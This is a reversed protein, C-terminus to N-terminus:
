ELIGTFLYHLRDLFSAGKVKYLLKGYREDLEKITNQRKEIEKDQQEKIVNIVENQTKSIVNYEERGFANSRHRINFVLMKGETDLAQKLTKIEERQEDFAKKLGEYEKLDIIVQNM